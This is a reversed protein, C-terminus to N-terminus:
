KITAGSRYWRDVLAREDDTMGTLNGPPMAKALVSQQHIQLARARVLEPTDLMVGKPPETFGQFSPKAAHCSVCRADIVQKVQAFDVGPTATESRPAMLVMPIVIFLLGVALVWAPARGKHRMVFWVRILAGALTLSLLVLWSWRTSYTMAYHNSIMVFVVPLTFYTNHVSRQKGALADKADAACGSTVAAVM